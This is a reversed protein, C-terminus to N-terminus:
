RCAHVHAPAHPRLRDGELVGRVLPEARRLPGPLAERLYDAPDQAPPFGREGVEAAQDVAAGRTLERIGHGPHPLLVELRLPRPGAAPPSDEPTVTSEVKTMSTSRDSAAARAFDASSSPRGSMLIREVGTSYSIVDPRRYVRERDSADAKRARAARNAIRGNSSAAADFAASIRVSSMRRPRAFDWTPTM